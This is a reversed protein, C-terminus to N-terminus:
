AKFVDDAWSGQTVKLKRAGITGEVALKYIGPNTTGMGINGTQTIVLHNTGSNYEMGIRLTNDNYVTFTSAVNNGNRLFFHPVNGASIELSP